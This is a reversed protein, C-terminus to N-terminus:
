MEGASYATPQLGVYEGFEFIQRGANLSSRGVKGNDLWGEPLLITRSTYCAKTDM